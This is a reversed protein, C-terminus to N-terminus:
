LPFSVVSIENELIGCIGSFQSYGVLLSYLVIRTMLSILVSLNM